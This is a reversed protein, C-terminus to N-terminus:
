VLRARCLTYRRWGQGALQSSDWMMASFGFWLWIALRGAGTWDCGVGLLSIPRALVYTIVVTRVIEGSIKGISPRSGATSSQQTTPATAANEVHGGLFM